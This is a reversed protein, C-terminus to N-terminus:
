CGIIHKQISQLKCYLNIQFRYKVKRIVYKKRIIAILLETIFAFILTIVENGFICCCFSNVSWQRANEPHPLSCKVTTKALFPQWYKIFPHICGIPTYILWSAFSIITSERNVSM